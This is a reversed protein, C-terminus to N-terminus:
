SSAQSIFKTVMYPELGEIGGESGYGSDKVGGFPTEPMALGHHNIGIMGAEITEGLATVTATSRTYAYAALGYPLRNAEHIADEFNTFPMVLAVPGFPEEHLARADVSLDTLITPEFF